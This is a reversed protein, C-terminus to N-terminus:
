ADKQKRYYHVRLPYTSCWECGARTRTPHRQKLWRPRRRSKNDKLKLPCVAAVAWLIHVSKATKAKRRCCLPSLLSTTQRGANRKARFRAISSCTEPSLFLRVQKNTQTKLMMQAGTMLSVPLRTTTTSVNALATM